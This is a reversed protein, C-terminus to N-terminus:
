GRGRFFSSMGKPRAPLGQSLLNSGPFKAGLVEIREISPAQQLLQPANAGLAQAIRGNLRAQRGAQDALADFWRRRGSPFRLRPGSVEM